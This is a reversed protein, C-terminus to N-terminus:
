PLIPFLIYTCLFVFLLSAVYWMKQSEKKLHLIIRQHGMNLSLVYRQDSPCGKSTDCLLTVRQAITVYYLGCVKSWGM